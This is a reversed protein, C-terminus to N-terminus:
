SKLDLAWHAVSKARFDLAVVNDESSSCSYEAENIQDCLEGFHVRRSVIVGTGKVTLFLLSSSFRLPDLDVRFM